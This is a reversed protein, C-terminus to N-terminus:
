LYRYTEEPWGLSKLDNKLLSALPDITFEKEENYLIEIFEPITYASYLELGENKLIQESYPSNQILVLVGKWSYPINKFQITTTNDIIEKTEIKSKSTSSTVNDIILLLDNSEIKGLIIEKRGHMKEKMIKPNSLSYIEESAKQFGKEKLYQAADKYIIPDKRFHLSPIKYRTTLADGLITGAAPIPVLKTPKPKIEDFFYKLLDTIKILLDPNTSLDRFYSFFHRKERKWKIGESYVKFEGCNFSDIVIERKMKKINM